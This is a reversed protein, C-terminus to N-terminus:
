QLTHATWLAYWLRHASVDSLGHQPMCQSSCVLGHLTCTHPDTWPPGEHFCTGGRAHVRYEMCLGHCLGTGGSWPSTVAPEGPPAMRRTCCVRLVLMGNEMVGSGLGVCVNCADDGALGSCPAAGPLGGLRQPFTQWCSRVLRGFCPTFNMFSGFASWSRHTPSLLGFHLTLTQEGGCDSMTVTWSITSFATKGRAVCGARPRLLTLLWGASVADRPGNGWGLWCGSGFGDPLVRSGAVGHRVFPMM